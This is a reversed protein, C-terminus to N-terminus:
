SRDYYQADVFPDHDGSTSGSAVNKLQEQSQCEKNDESLPKNVYQGDVFPDVDGPVSTLSDRGSLAQPQLDSQATYQNDVFPDGNTSPDTIEIDMVIPTHQQDTTGYQPSIFMDGNENASNEKNETGKEHEGEEADESEDVDEDEDEYDEGDGDEDEGVEMEEEKKAPRFRPRTFVPIEEDEFFEYENGEDDEAIKNSDTSPIDKTVPRGMSAALFDATIKAAEEKKRSEEQVRAEEKVQRLVLDLGETIASEVINRTMAEMKMKRNLAEFARVHIFLGARSLAEPKVEEEWFTKAAFRSEDELVKKKYSELEWYAPPYEYVGKGVRFDNEWTGKWMKLDAFHHVGPGHKKDDVYMGEHVTGNTKTQKGFGNRLGDKWMGEYINKGQTYTGQGNYIEDVFEGDYSTGDEYLYIGRGHIKGMKWEGDYSWGSGDIYHGKGHYEDEFWTGDYSSGNRYVYKGEGHRQEYKWNGKYIEFLGLIEDKKTTFVGWGHRCDDKWDGEYKSCDPYINIGFGCRFGKEFSGTYTAGDMKLVGEGHKLGFKWDGVYEAVNPCTYTGSGHKLDDKWDGVYVWDEV